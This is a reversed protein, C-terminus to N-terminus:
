AAGELWACAKSLADFLRVDVARNRAVVELLQRDPLSEPTVVVACRVGPDWTVAFHLGLEFRELISLDGTLGCADVLIAKLGRERCTAMVEGLIRQIAPLAPEGVITVFLYGERPELTARLAEAIDGM